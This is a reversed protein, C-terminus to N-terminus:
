PTASGTAADKGHRAPKSTHGAGKPAPTHKGTATADTPAALPLGPFEAHLSADVQLPRAWRQYSLVIGRKLRHFANSNPAVGFDQAIAIWGQAHDHQWRQAVARCPQGAVQGLACAFYIDGPTWRPDALLADVLARPASDYRVLEDAFADPYRAAYRSIDGLLGDVWADGSRPTAAVAPEQTRAVGPLLMLALVCGALLARSAAVARLMANRPSMTSRVARMM